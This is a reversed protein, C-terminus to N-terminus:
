SEWAVCCNGTKSKAQYMAKDACRLMDEATDETRNDCIGISLKLLISTAAEHQFIKRSAAEIIRDAIEVAEKAGVGPLIAAFEDGGIRAIVDEHRLVDKLVDSAAKLVLDGQDHGYTDNVLKFKDLDMMLVSVRNGNKASVQLREAFLDMFSDRNLLGTLSDTEAKRKLAYEQKRIDTVDRMITVAGVPMGRQSQLPYVRIHILCLEGNRMELETEGDACASVLNVWSSFDFFIDEMKKGSPVEHIRFKRILLQEAFPNIDSITGTSDTVIIGLDIVDFLKDRAIPSVSFLDNRYLNYFLILSGPLYITVIPLNVKTGELFATKFFALVFVLGTAILVLIVQRRMGKTVQRSFVFLIVLAIFALLYNYAVFAVGITTQHVSLAKGFLPSYSITYGTRMIHTSADTFILLIAAIPIILLLPLLRKLREYRAYDVAFYVCAVPLLFVGIQEINRWLLMSQESESLMELLSGVSWITVFFIQLLFAKSGAKKINRIAFVAVIFLFTLSSGVIFIYGLEM